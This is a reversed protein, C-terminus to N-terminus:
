TKIIQHIFFSVSATVIILSIVANFKNYDPNGSALFNFGYLFNSTYRTDSNFFSYLVSKFVGADEAKTVVLLDEANPYAYNSALFLWFYGWIIGMIFFSIMFWYAHNFRLVIFVIILALILLVIYELNIKLAFKFKSLFSKNFINNLQLESESSALNYFKSEGTKLNLIHITAPNNSSDSHNRYITIKNFYAFGTKFRLCSTDPQIDIPFGLVSHGKINYNGTNKKGAQEISIELPDAINIRQIYMSIGLILIIIIGTYRIKSIHLNKGPM